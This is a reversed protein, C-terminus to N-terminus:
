TAVASSARRLALAGNIRDKHRARYLRNRQANAERLAATNAKYLAAVYCQRCLGRGKVPREPHCTPPKRSRAM